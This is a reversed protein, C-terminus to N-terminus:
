AARRGQGAKPRWARGPRPRGGARPTYESMCGEPGTRGQPALRPGAQAPGGARPTYESM